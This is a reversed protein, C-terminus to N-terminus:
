CAWKATARMGGTRGSCTPTRPSSTRRTPTSGGSPAPSSPNGSTATDSVAIDPLKGIDEAIIADVIQDSNRRINQSSRLSARIGTVVIEGQAGQEEADAEQETETNDATSDQATQPQEAQSQAWAPTALALAALSASCRVFASFRM